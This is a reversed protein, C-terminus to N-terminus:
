VAFDATPFGGIALFNDVLKWGLALSNPWTQPQKPRKPKAKAKIRPRQAQTHAKTEIYPKQAQSEAHAQQGTKAGNKRREHM